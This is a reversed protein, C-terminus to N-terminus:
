WTILRGLLTSRSTAPTSHRPFAISTHLARSAASFRSSAGITSRQTVMRLEMKDATALTTAPMSSMTSPMRRRLWHTGLWHQQVSASRHARGEYLRQPVYKWIQQVRSVSQTHSEFVMVSGFQTLWTTEMAKFRSSERSETLVGLAVSHRHGGADSTAPASRTSISVTHAGKSATPGAAAAAAGGSLGHALPPPPPPPLTRQAEAPLRPPELEGIGAALCFSCACCKRLPCHFETHRATCVPECGTCSAAAPAPPHSANDLAFHPSSRPRERPLAEVSGQYSSAVDASWRTSSASGRQRMHQVPQVGSHVPAARSSAMTLQLRSKWLSLLLWVALVTALAKRWERSLPM